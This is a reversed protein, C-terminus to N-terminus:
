IRDALKYILALLYMEWRLWCRFMILSVTGLSLSGSGGKIGRHIEKEEQEGSVGGDRIYNVRLFTDM